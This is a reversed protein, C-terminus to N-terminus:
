EPDPINISLETAAWSRIREVYEYFEAVSLNATSGPLKIKMGHLEVIRPPLFLRKFIEHLEEPTHGTEHSIVALVAGWYYANQDHSRDKKQKTVRVKVEEGDKLKWLFSNWITEDRMLLRGKKVIAAFTPTPLM